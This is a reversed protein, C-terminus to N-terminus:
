PIFLAAYIVTGCRCPAPAYVGRLGQTGSIYTMFGNRKLIIKPVAFPLDPVALFRIQAPFLSRTVCLPIRKILFTYKNEKVCSM